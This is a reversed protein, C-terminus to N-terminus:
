SNAFLVGMGDQAKVDRNGTDNIPIALAPEVTWCSDMARQHVSKPTDLSKSNTTSRTGDGWESGELNVLKLRLSGPSTRMLMWFAMRLMGNIPDFAASVKRAAMLFSESVSVSVSFSVLIEKNGRVDSGRGMDDVGDVRDSDDVRAADDVRDVGDVDYVDYVGDVEWVLM